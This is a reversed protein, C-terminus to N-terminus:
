SIITIEFCIIEFWQVYNETNPVNLLHNKFIIFITLVLNELFDYTNLVKMFTQTGKMLRKSRLTGQPARKALIEIENLFRDIFFNGIRTADILQDWVVVSGRRAPKVLVQRGFPTVVVPSLGVWKWAGGGVWKKVWEGWRKVYTASLTPATSCEKRAPGVEGWGTM